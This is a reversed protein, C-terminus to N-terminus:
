CVNNYERRTWAALPLLAVRKVGQGFFCKVKKEGGGIIANLSHPEGRANHWFRQILQHSRCAIQLIM